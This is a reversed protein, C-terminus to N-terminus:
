KHQLIYDASSHLQQAVTSGQLQHHQLQQHHLQQGQMSMPALTFTMPQILQAQSMQSQGGISVALNSQNLLIPQGVSNQMMAVQTLSQPMGASMHAPSMGPPPLGYGAPGAGGGPAPAPAIPQPNKPKSSIKAPKAVPIPGTGRLEGSNVYARLPRGSCKISSLYKKAKSGAKEEFENPTMWEENVLICKGKSGSEYKAVYLLASVSKCRVQMVNGLRGGPQSGSKHSLHLQQQPQGLSPSQPQAPGVSSVM